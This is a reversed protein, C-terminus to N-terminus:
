RRRGRKAVPKGIIESLIIAQRATQSDLQLGISDLPKRVPAKVESAPLMTKQRRKKAKNEM